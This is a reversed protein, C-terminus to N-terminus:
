QLMLWPKEFSVRAQGQLVTCGRQELQQLWAPLASLKNWRLDLKELNADIHLEELHLLNGLSEPLSTLQNDDLYLKKLHILNGFWEPLATLQNGALDLHQLHTLQDLSGPLATLASYRVSLATTNETEGSM